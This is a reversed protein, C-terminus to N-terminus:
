KLLLKNLLRANTAAGLQNNPPQIVGDIILGQTAQHAMWLEKSILPRGNIKLTHAQYDEINFLRRGETNVSTENYGSNVTLKDGPRVRVQVMKYLQDPEDGPETFVIKEAFFQADLRALAVSQLATQPDDKLARNMGTEKMYVPPCQWSRCLSAKMKFTETWSKKGAYTTSVAMLAAFAFSTTVIWQKLM